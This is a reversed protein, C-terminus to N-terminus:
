LAQPLFPPPPPALMIIYLYRTSTRLLTFKLAALKHLLVNLLMWSWSKVRVSTIWADAKTHKVYKFDNFGMRQKCVRTFGEKM